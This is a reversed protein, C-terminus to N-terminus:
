FWMPEYLESQDFPELFVKETGAVNRPERDPLNILEPGVRPTNEHVTKDPDEDNGPTQAVPELFCM